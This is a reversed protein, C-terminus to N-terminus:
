LQKKRKLFARKKNYIYTRKFNYDFVEIDFEVEISDNTLSIIKVRGSISTERDQWQWVSQWDFVCKIASTDRLNLWQLQMAKATDIITLALIMCYEEDIVNPKNYCIEQTLTTPYKLFLINKESYHDQDKLRLVNIPQSKVLMSSLEALKITRGSGNKSDIDGSVTSKSLDVTLWYAGFVLLIIPRKKM